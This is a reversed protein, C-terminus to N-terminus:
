WDKGWKECILMYADMRRQLNGPPLYEHEYMEVNGNTLIKYKGTSAVYKYDDNYPKDEGIANRWGNVYYQTILFLGESEKYESNDGNDGQAYLNLDKSYGNNVEEEGTDNNKYYRWLQPGTWYWAASTMAWNNGIVTATDNDSQTKGFIWTYDKYTVTNALNGYYSNFAEDESYYNDALYKLFSDHTYDHTIQIYGAGRTNATYGLKRCSEDSRKELVVGNSEAILTAFFMRISRGSTIGFTELVANYLKIDGDNLEVGWGVAELMEKTVYETANVNRFYYYENYIDDGSVYKIMSNEEANSIDSEVKTEPLSTELTPDKSPEPTPTPPIPYAVPLTPEEGDDGFLLDLINKLWEPINGSPDV